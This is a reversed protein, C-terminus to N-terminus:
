NIRAKKTSSFGLEVISTNLLVMEVLLKYFFFLLLFFFFFFFLQLLCSLKKREKFHEARWLVAVVSTESETDFRLVLYVFCIIFPFFFCLFIFVSHFVDMQLSSTDMNEWSLMLEICFQAQKSKISSCSSFCRM